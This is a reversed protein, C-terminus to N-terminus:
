DDLLLGLPPTIRRPPDPVEYEIRLYPRWSSTTHERSKFQGLKTSQSLDNEVKILVSLVKDGQLDAAYNWNHNALLDWNKRAQFTGNPIATRALLQQFIPQNDWTIAFEDWAWSAVYHVDFNISSIDDSNASWFFLSLTASLFTANAPISQLYFRLHSRTTSYTSWAYGDGASLTDSGGNNLDSYWTGVSADGGCQLTVTVKEGFGPGSTTVLVFLVVLASIFLNKM